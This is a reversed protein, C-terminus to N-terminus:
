SIGPFSGLGAGELGVDGDDMASEDSRTVLGNLGRAPRDAPCGRGACRGDAGRRRGALGRAHQGPPELNMAWRTATLTEM